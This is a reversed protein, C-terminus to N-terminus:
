RQFRRRLVLMLGAGLAVLLGAGPEPICLTDVVVQCIEINGTILITEHTPNPQLEFAWRQYEWPDPSSPQLSIQNVLVGSVGNVTINPQGVHHGDLTLQVFIYKYPNATDYNPDFVSMSGGGSINWVGPRNDVLAAWTGVTTILPTGNPNYWGPEPPTPSNGTPFSTELYTAGATGRTWWPPILDDALAQWTAGFVLAGIVLSKLTLTRM